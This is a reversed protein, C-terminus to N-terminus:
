WTTLAARKWTNAGVAVYIYGSDIAIDGATGASSATAPVATSVLRLGTARVTGNVDLNTSPDTTNIGVKGRLATETISAPGLMVQNAKTANADRGLVITNSTDISNELKGAFDGSANTGIGSLTMVTSSTRTFQYVTGSVLGTPPTGATATFLLNIKSGGSGPFGHASGFTITNATIDATAFTKATAANATFAAGAQHGIALAYDWNNNQLASQGFGNSYHGTNNQLANAGLGNSRIGTNSQLASYGFGTSFVGTNNQLASYGFGNSYGGTNNQLAYTGLGWGDTAVYASGDWRQTQRRLFIGGADSLIAMHKNKNAVTIETGNTQQTETFTNAGLGAASLAARALAATTAGTGGNAIAVTGTVNAATGTTNQNLTPFDGVLADGLTGAGTWKTITGTTGSGGIPAAWTGDGRLYTTSDATGTGLNARPVMGVLETADLATLASGDGIFGPAAIDYYTVWEPGVYTFTHGGGDNLGRASGTIDIGWVGSAGTGDIAVKNNLIGYLDTQNAVNGVISGWVGGGGVGPALKNATVSGDAIAPTTVVNPRLQYPSTIVTQAQVVSGALMMLTLLRKMM